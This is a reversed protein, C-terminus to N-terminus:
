IHILSLSVSNIAEDLKNIIPTMLTEQYGMLSEQARLDAKSYKEELSALEAQAAQSAGTTLTGSNMMDQYEQAKVMYQKEIMDLENQMEDSRSQLKEQASISEPMEALLAQYDVLGMKSTQATSTLTFGFVMALPLIFRLAKM